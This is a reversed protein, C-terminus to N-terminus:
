KRIAYDCFRLNGCFSLYHQNILVVQVDDNSQKELIQLVSNRKGKKEKEILKDISSM